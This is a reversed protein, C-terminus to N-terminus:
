RGQDHEFERAAARGRGFTAGARGVVRNNSCSPSHDPELATDDSAAALDQAAPERKGIGIGQKHPGGRDGLLRKAGEEREAANPGAAIFM